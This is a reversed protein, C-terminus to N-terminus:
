TTTTLKLACVQLYKDKWIVDTAVVVVSQKAELAKRTRQISAQGQWYQHWCETKSVLARADM